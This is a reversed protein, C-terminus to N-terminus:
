YPMPRPPYPSAANAVVGGPTAGGAAQMPSPVAPMGPLNPMAPLGPTAAAPTQPPLGPAASPDPIAQGPMGSPLSQYQPVPPPQQIKLLAQAIAPNNQDTITRAIADRPNVVGMPGARATSNDATYGYDQAMM